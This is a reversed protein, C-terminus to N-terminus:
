NMSNPNQPTPKPVPATYVLDAVLRPGDYSYKVYCTGETAIQTVLMTVMEDGTIREGDIRYITKLDEDNFM